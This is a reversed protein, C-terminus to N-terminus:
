TGRARQRLFRGDDAHDTLYDSGLNEWYWGHVGSFPATYSGHARDLEQADFSQAYGPPADDPASHFNYSVVGSSEWSFVM